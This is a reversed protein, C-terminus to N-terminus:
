ILEDASITTVIDDKYFNINYSFLIQSTNDRSVFGRSFSPNIWFGNSSNSNDPVQNQKALFFIAGFIKDAYEDQNLDNIMSPNSIGVSSQFDGDPTTQFNSLEIILKPNAPTLTDIIAGSGFIETLLM